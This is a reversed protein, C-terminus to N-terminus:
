STMLKAPPPAPQGTALYVVQDALHVAHHVAHDANRELYRSAPDPMAAQRQPHGSLM